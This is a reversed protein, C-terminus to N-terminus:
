DAGSDGQDGRDLPRQQEEDGVDVLPLDLRICWRECGPCDRGPYLQCRYPGRQLHFDLWLPDDEM